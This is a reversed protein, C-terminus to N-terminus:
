KAVMEAVSARSSHDSGDFSLGSGDVSTGARCRHARGNAAMAANLLDENFTARYTGRVDIFFGKGLRASIGAGMPVTGVDDM